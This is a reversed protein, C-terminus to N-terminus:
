DQGASVYSFRGLGFVAVLFVGIVGPTPRGLGGRPTTCKQHLSEEFPRIQVVFRCASPLYDFYLIILGIFRCALLGGLNNRDGLPIGADRAIGQYPVRPHGVQTGPTGGLVRARPIGGVRCSRSTGAGCRIVVRAAGRWVTNHYVGPLFVLFFWRKM